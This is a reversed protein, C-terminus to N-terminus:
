KSKQDSSAGPAGIAAAIRKAVDLNGFASKHGLVGGPEIQYYKRLEDPNKAYASTLATYEDSVTIDLARACQGVQSSAEQWDPAGPPTHLLLPKIKTTLRRKLRYLAAVAAGRREAAMRSGDIIELGGYQLYLVLRAGAADTQQKLRALLHCTVGVEDTSVTVFSNGDATFWFDAFFAAMFRDIAAIHGLWGRIDFRGRRAPPNQPVPSNHAVLGGNEITFYPKPWGSSAYGTGIITGPILDVIIIQPRILPLMQEALLIIQDAQYGGEGANNVNWGTLQALQAPWTQADSVGSGATFSSGVALVGGSKIAPDASGNSRFGYERTNFQPSAIFPKLRWGLLSDYQVAKNITAAAREHRFDRWELLPVQAAIRIAIEALALYALTAIILVAASEVARAMLPKRRAGQRSRRWIGRRWFVPLTDRRAEITESM